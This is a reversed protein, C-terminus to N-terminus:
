FIWDKSERERVNLFVLMSSPGFYLMQTPLTPNLKRFADARRKTVVYLFMAYAIACFILSGLVSQKSILEIGMGATAPLSGIIAAVSVAAAVGIAAIILPSNM